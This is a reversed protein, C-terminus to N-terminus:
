PSPAAATLPSCRLPETGACAPSVKCRLLWAARKRCELVADANDNLTLCHTRRWEESGWVEKLGRDQQDTVRSAMALLLSYHLSRRCAGSIGYM